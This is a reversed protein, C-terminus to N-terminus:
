IWCNYLLHEAVKGRSYYAVETGEPLGGEEFVLKHMKQDRFLTIDCFRAIYTVNSVSSEVILILFVSSLCWGKQWKGNTGLTCQSVLRFKRISQFQFQNQCDSKFMFAVVHTLSLKNSFAGIVFETINVLKESINGQMNNTLSSGMTVAGDSKPSFVPNMLRSPDFLLLDSSFINFFYRKM